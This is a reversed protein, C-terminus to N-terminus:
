NLEAGFYELALRKIKTDLSNKCPGRENGLHLYGWKWGDSDQVVQFLIPITIKKGEYNIITAKAKYSELTDTYHQKDEKWKIKGEFTDNVIENIVYELIKSYAGTVNGFLIKMNDKLLEEISLEVSEECKVLESTKEDVNKKHIFIYPIKM